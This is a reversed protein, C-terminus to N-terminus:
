KALRMAQQANVDPTLEKDGPAYGNQSLIYATLDAYAEDDLGGPRDLPMRAKMYSFLAAVNGAAWHNAFYSGKLPPGGFEGNDLTTGHCDVCSHRYATEGRDAQDQTFSPAAAPADAHPAHGQERMAYIQASTLNEARAAAIEAPVIPKFDKPLKADNGWSTLVQDIVAAVQDDGLSSWSPMTGDYKEGDIEVAGSLGFLVLRVLYTRGDPRALVDPAHGVLPPFGGPIGRGNRQHCGSCNGDYTKQGLAQWDFGTPAAQAHARMMAGPGLLLGACLLGAALTGIKM